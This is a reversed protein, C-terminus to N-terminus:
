CKPDLRTRNYWRPSHPGRFRRCRVITKDPLDPASRLRQERPFFCLALVGTAVLGDSAPSLCGYAAARLGERASEYHPRSLEVGRRKALRNKRRSITRM